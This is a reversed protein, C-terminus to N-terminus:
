KAVNHPSPVVVLSVSDVLDGLVFAGVVLEVVLVPLLEGVNFVVDLLVVLGDAVWLM